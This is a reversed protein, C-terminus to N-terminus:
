FPIDVRWHIFIRICFEFDNKQEVM